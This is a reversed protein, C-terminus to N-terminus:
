SLQVGAGQKLSQGPPYSSRIAIERNDLTPFLTDDGEGRYM